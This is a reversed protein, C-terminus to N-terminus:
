FDLFERKTPTIGAHVEDTTGAHGWGQWKCEETITSM